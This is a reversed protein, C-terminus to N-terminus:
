LNHNEDVVAVLFWSVIILWLTPLKKSVCGLLLLRLVSFNNTLHEEMSRDKSILSGAPSKLSILYKGGGLGFYRERRM